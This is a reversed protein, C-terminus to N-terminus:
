RPKCSDRSIDAAKALDSDHYFYSCLLKLGNGAKGVVKIAQYNNCTPGILYEFNVRVDEFSIMGRKCQEYVTEFTNLYIALNAENMIVNKASVKGLKKREEAANKLKEMVEVNYLGFNHFEDYLGQSIEFSVKKRLIELEADSNTVLALNLENAIKQYNKGQEELEITIQSFDVQVKYGLFQIGAVVMSIIIAAISLVLTWNQNESLDKWLRLGRM